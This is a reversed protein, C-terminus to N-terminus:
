TRKLLSELEAKLMVGRWSQLLDPQTLRSYFETPVQWYWHITDNIQRRSGILNVAIGCAEAHKDLLEKTAKFAAKYGAMDTLRQLPPLAPAALGREIAAIIDAGAVKRTVVPLEEFGRLKDIHTPARRALELLVHEKMVFGLPINQQEARQQRWAALERLVPLHEASLQWANGIFLYLLDAPTQQARKWAQFESEAQVLERRGQADVAEQLRPYIDHLYLVDTAAYTLQEPALPRQLWDTRSQSKDVEVQEFHQVLAAYGLADGLGVMAAAVQTDFLRQPVQGMAQWFIEYDEGGAHIVKTLEPDVLLAWLPSLDLNSLPDILVLQEGARAQILGLNARLTRTRVFETDLTLYSQAQAHHCFAALAADTTIVEYNIM